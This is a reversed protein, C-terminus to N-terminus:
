RLHGRSLNPTPRRPSRRTSDAKPRAVVASSEVTLSGKLVGLESRAGEIEVVGVDTVSGTVAVAGEVPAVSAAVLVALPPASAVDPAVLLGVSATALEPEVSATELEPECGATVPEGSALWAPDPESPPVDAVALLV